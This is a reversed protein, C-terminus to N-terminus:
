LAPSSRRGRFPGVVDELWPSAAARVEGGIQVSPDRADFLVTRKRQARVFQFARREDLSNDIML